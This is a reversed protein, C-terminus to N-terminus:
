AADGFMERRRLEEGHFDCIRSREYESLVKEIDLLLVQDGHGSFEAVVCDRHTQEPAISRRSLPNAIVSSPLIQVTVPCDFCM